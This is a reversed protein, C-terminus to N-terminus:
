YMNITGDFELNQLYNAPNYLDDDESLNFNHVLWNRKSLREVIADLYAPVPYFVQDMKVIYEVKNAASM